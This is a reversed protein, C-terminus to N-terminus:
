LPISSSLSHSRSIFIGFFGYECKRNAALNMEDLVCVTDFPAIGSFSMCHRDFAHLAIFGWIQRLSKKTNDRWACNSCSLFLPMRFTICGNRILSDSYRQCVSLILKAQTQQSWELAHLMDLLIFGSGAREM